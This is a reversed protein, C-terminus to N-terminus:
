SIPLEERGWVDAPNPPRLRGARSLAAFVPDPIAALSSSPPFSKPTAKIAGEGMAGNKRGTSLAWCGGSSTRVQGPPWLAM